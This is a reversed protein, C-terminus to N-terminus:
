DTDFGADDRIVASGLCARNCGDTALEVAERRTACIVSFAAVADGARGDVQKKKWCDLIEYSWSREL